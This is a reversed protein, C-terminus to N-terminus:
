TSIAKDKGQRRMHHIENGIVLFLGAMIAVDAVNFIGTRLPFQNVNLGMNMFDVVRGHRFIRDILNGIGGAAVLSFACLPLLTIKKSIFMYLVLSGLILANLGTMVTTRVGDPLNAGLSLFAGTNEAYQLRFTDGCFSYFSQTNSLYRIALWKTGHDLAILLVLISFVVM